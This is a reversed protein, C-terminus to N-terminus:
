ALALQFNSVHMETVTAPQWAPIGDKVEAIIELIKRIIEHNYNESNDSKFGIIMLDTAATVILLSSGDTLDIPMIGAARRGRSEILMRNARAALSPFVRDLDASYTGDDLPHIDVVKLLRGAAHSYDYIVIGFIQEIVQALANLRNILHEMQHTGLSSTTRSNSAILM